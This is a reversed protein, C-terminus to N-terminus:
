RKRFSADPTGTFCGLVWPYSDTIYYGYSGNISMGNCADLDCSGDGLSTADHEYDDRYRGDYGTGNPTYTSGNYVQSTRTGSKLVYCSEAKRINGSDNFYSGFIPFGDAAFGVVPSEVAQDSHFMAEPNGHYHYTGDPQTHANHLDTGFSNLSSMPDFRFPQGIDNCGIKGDGVGECGAALLDLKVGNLFIANDYDLSLATSASAALPTTTISFTNSQASVPTAFSASNDNFDHNAIANTQFTCKGNSQSIAVSGNFAINRQIDTVNSSYSNVYDACDTSQNTFIADTIDLDSTTGSSSSGNCASVLAVSIVSCLILLNKMM